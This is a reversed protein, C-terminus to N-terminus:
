LYQDKLRQITKQDRPTRQQARYLNGLEGAETLDKFRDFNSHEKEQELQFVLNRDSIEYFGNGRKPDVIALIFRIMGTTSNYQLYSVRNGVISDSVNVFYRHSQQDYAVDGYRRPLLQFLDPSDDSFFFGPGEIYLYRVDSPLPDFTSQAM